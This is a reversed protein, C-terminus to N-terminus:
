ISKKIIKRVHVKNDEDMMKLFFMGDGVLDLDYIKLYNKGSKLDM